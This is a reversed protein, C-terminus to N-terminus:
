FFATLLELFSFAQLHSYETGHSLEKKKAPQKRNQTTKGTVFYQSANDM